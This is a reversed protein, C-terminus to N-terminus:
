GAHSHSGRPQALVSAEIQRARELEAVLEGIPPINDDREIMSPVAGFRAVARAYLQWVEECVPHDHTDLLHTGEDSHGALHFQGVRDVPIADLYAEASFGHNVSSVYVNNVDLLLKCDARRALEALFDPESMTSARYTVYSSVNEVLIQRQLRDQVRRVREVVHALAEENHPIPWLDHASRGDIRAFCLHDSVWAPEVESVLEALLGLYREDLPDVSGLSMSVGHLVVPYRERALRLVHRPNGGAVMVNETIVELWDIGPAGAVIDAYHVPRLGVGHGLPAAAV